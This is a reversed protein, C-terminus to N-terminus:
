DNFKPNLIAIAFHEFSDRDTEKEIIIFQIICRARLYNKVADENQYIGSKILKNKLTSVQRNGMLHNRYIRNQLNNSQGIYVTELGNDKIEFIHYVGGQQPLQAKFNESNFKIFGSKLLQDLLTTYRQVISAIEISDMQWGEGGSM